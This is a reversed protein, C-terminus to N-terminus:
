DDDVPEPAPTLEAPSHSRPRRIGGRCKPPSEFDGALAVYIEVRSLVLELRASLSERQLRQEEVIALLVALYDTVGSLYQDRLRDSTQRALKLQADLLDIRQLTYRERALADEVERYALLVTEGYEALRQRAVAVTRYVEARREGGDLLPAILEGAVSGIWDRFLNEPSEAATTISAFLNIRPYQASVASALDRDAAQLALYDRRVDPRGRPYRFRPDFLKKDRGPVTQLPVRKLAFEIQDALLGTM